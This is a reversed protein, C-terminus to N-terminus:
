MHERHVYTMGYSMYMYVHLKKLGRSSSSCLCLSILRLPPRDHAVYQFLHKAAQLWDHVLNLVHVWWLLVVLLVVVALFPPVMGVGVVVVVVVVTEAVVVIRLSM